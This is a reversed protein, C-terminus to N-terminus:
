HGTFVRPTFPQPARVPQPQRQLFAIFADLEDIGTNTFPRGRLMSYGSGGAALFDFTALTYTSDPSVKRGDALTIDIVKQGAPALSDLRVRMGSVSAGSEPVRLREAVNTDAHHLVRGSVRGVM